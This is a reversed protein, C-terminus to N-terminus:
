QYIFTVINPNQDDIILELVTTADLNFAGSSSFVLAKEQGLFSMDTNFTFTISNTVRGTGRFNGLQIPTQSFSRVFRNASYTINNIIVECM